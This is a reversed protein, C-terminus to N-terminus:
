EQEEERQHRVAARADLAILEEAAYEDSDAFITTYSIADARSKAVKGCLMCTLGRTCRHMWVHLCKTESAM